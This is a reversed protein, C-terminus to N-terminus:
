APLANQSVPRPPMLDAPNKGDGFSEGSTQPMPIASLLDEPCVPMGLAEEKRREKAAQEDSGAESIDEACPTEITVVGAMAPQPVPLLRDSDDAVHLTVARLLLILGASTVAIMRSRWASEQRMESM